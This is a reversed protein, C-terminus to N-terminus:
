ETDLNGELHIDWDLKADGSGNGFRREPVPQRALASMRDSNIEYKMEIMALLAQMTYNADNGACAMAGM